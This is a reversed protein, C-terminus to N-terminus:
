NAAPTDEDGELGLEELTSATVLRDGLEPLRETPWSDLRARLSPSLPGFRKEIQRLLISFQGKEFSTKGIMGAEGYKETLLLHEYEALAPGELPLYAEVLDALLHRRYEDLGSTVVRQMAEAKLEARREAPIRMLAALAVGPPNTGQLYQFADLAPLGVYAYEFRVILHDWFWEEYVDWGIGELGVRLYLGIPLVPLNHRNKLHQYYAHMRGRLPTVSDRSEVEVHILIVWSVGEATRSRTVAERVPVKVLLDIAQREGQPPNPFVEQELWEAASFDIRDVWQPFFLEFFERFFERLTVKFRQDHDAM